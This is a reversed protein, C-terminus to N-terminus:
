VCKFVKLINSLFSYVDLCLYWKPMPFTGYEDYSVCFYLAIVVLFHISMLACTSNQCLFLIMNIMVYVFFVICNKILCIYVNKKKVFVICKNKMYNYRSKTCCIDRFIGCTGSLKVTHYSMITADGKM